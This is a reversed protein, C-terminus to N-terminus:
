NNLANKRLKATRKREREKRKYEEHAANNFKLILRSRKKRLADQNRYKESHKEQYRKCRETNTTKTKNQKYEMTQLSTFRPALESFDSLFSTKKVLVFSFSKLKVNLSTNLLHTLFYSLAM